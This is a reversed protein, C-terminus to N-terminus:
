PPVIEVIEGWVDGGSACGLHLRIRTGYGIRVAWLSNLAIDCALSLAMRMPGAHTVVLVPGTAPQAVLRTLARAIRAQVTPLVEGGPPPHNLPDAYFAAIATRGQPQAEIGARLCGDWAGFDLEAWDGDVTLTLDRHKALAAAAEHARRLPSSIVQAWTQLDTQRKFQAWGEPTLPFDTRGDLYGSRGTSGHRLLDVIM